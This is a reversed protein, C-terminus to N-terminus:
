SLYISLYIVQHYKQFGRMQIAGLGEKDGIGKVYIHDGNM